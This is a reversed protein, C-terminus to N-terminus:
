NAGLRVITIGSADLLSGTCDSFFFPGNEPTRALGRIAFHDQPVGASFPGKKKQRKSCSDFGKFYGGFAKFHLSRQKAHQIEHQIDIAVISLTVAFIFPSLIM